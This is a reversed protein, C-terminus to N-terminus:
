KAILTGLIKKKNSITQINVWRLKTKNGFNPSAMESAHKRFMIIGTSNVLVGNDWNCKSLLKIM